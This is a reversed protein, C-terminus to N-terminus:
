DEKQEWETRLIGMYIRDIRQGDRHVGGRLRGEVVFGAKEYARIARQNDGIVDLGVRYLNLENFAYNLALYLAETGLGKGRKDPDGIGIALSATGNNWEINHLSIFGVLRDDAITRLNFHVANPNHEGSMYKGLTDVSSPRAFDTDMQRQYAADESWTSFVPLDEPRPLSLRIHQGCFLDPFPKM